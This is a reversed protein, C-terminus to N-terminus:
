RPVTSTKAAAGLGDTVLGGCAQGVAAGTAALGGILTVAGPVRAAPLEDRVISYALAFIGVASGMVVRGAILLPLSPALAALLSGLSFLALQVVIMRRKGFMDGLRGFIGCTVAGSVFFASFLSTAGVASTGLELQIEPLSPILLTQSVAYTLVVLSLASVISFPKM